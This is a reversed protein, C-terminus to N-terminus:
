PKLGSGLDYAMLSMTLEDIVKVTEDATLLISTEGIYIVVPYDDSDERYNSRINIEDQHTTIWSIM